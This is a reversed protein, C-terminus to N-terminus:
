KVGNKSVNKAVKKGELQPSESICPQGASRGVPRDSGESRILRPSVLGPSVLGLYMLGLYVLGLSMLGLSM